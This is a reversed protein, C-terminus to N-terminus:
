IYKSYDIIRYNRKVGGGRHYIVIKGTNIRGNIKLKKNLLYKFSKKKSIIYM